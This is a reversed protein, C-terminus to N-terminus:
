HLTATDYSRRMLDDANIVSSSELLAFDNDNFASPMDHFSGSNDCVQPTPNLDSEFIVQSHHDVGISHSNNGM